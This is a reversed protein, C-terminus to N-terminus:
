NRGITAWGFFRGCPVLSAGQGEELERLNRDIDGVALKWPYGALIDFLKRQIYSAAVHSAHLCESWLNGGDYEESVVYALRDWVFPGLGEIWALEEAMGGRLQEGRGALRDDSLVEVLLSDVVFSVITAIVMFKRLDPSLRGFGHLHFDTASPDERTKHVLQGLGVSLSAVVARCASGVTLWRSDTFQKWQHMYLVVLSVRELMDDEGELDGSVWSAGGKWWPHIEAVMDLMDAAVGLCMWYRAVQERDVPSRDFHLRELLHSHMRDHLTGFSNRLSETVIHIDRLGEAGALPALAWKLGNQIDHAACGCSVYLDLLGAVLTKPDDEAGFEPSYLARQRHRLLRDIASYVARDAFFHFLVPGDHGLRRLMPSFDVCAQFLHPAKKGELPIPDVMM